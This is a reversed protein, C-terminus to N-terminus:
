KKKKSKKTRSMIWIILIILIFIAVGFVIIITTYGKSFSFPKERSIVKFHSTARAVAFKGPETEYNLILELIYDGVPLTQTAFKKNFSIQKTIKIMESEGVPFEKGDFNKISYILEVDLNPEQGMPILNVTSMMKDGVYITKLEDPIVISADFLLKDSKVDLIVDIPPQQVTALPFGGGGGGGGGGEEEGGGGSYNSVVVTIYIDEHDYATYIDSTSTRMNKAANGTITITAEYGTGSVANWSFVVDGSVEAPVQYHLDITRAAPNWSDISLSGSTISSYFSAYDSPPNKVKMDYVDFGTISNADTRLRVDDTYNGITGTIKLNVDSVALVRFVNVNLVLVLLVAIILLKYNEKKM